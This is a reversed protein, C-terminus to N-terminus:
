LSEEDVFASQGEWIILDFSSREQSLTAETEVTGERRRETSLFGGGLGEPFGFCTATRMAEQSHSACEVFSQTSLVQTHIYLGLLMLLYLDIHGAASSAPPFIYFRM